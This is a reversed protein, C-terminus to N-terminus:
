RERPRHGIYSAFLRADLEGLEGRKEIKADLGRSGDSVLRDDSVARDDSEAVLRPSSAGHRRPQGCRAANRGLTANSKVLPSDSQAPESREGAANNHLAAALSWRTLHVVPKGILEQRRAARLAKGSRFSLM